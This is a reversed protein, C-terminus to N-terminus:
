KLKLSSIVKEMVEDYYDIHSSAFTLRSVFVFKEEFVVIDELCVQIDNVKINFLIKFTDKRSLLKRPGDTSVLSVNDEWDIHKSRQEIYEKLFDEQSQNNLGCVLVLDEGLPGTISMEQLSSKKDNVNWSVPIDVSFTTVPISCYQYDKINKPYFSESNFLTIHQYLAFSIAVVTVFVAFANVLPKFFKFRNSFVFLLSIIAGALLGGFHAYNDIGKEMFGFLINIILIFMLSSFNQKNKINEKAKEESTKFLEFVIAASLLGLVGGSAGVTLTKGFYASAAGGAIGSGFFILLFAPWGAITEIPPGFFRLAILNMFLHIFGIHVFMYSILRFYEGNKILFNSAAGMNILEIRDEVNFIVIFIVSFVLIVFSVIKSLKDKKEIVFKDKKNALVIETVKEKYESHLEKLKPLVHKAFFVKHELMGEIRKKMFEKIDFAEDPLKSIVARMKDEGDDFEGSYFYCVGRWFDRLEQPLMNLQEANSALYSDYEDKWGMFALFVFRNIIVNNRKEPSDNDPEFAKKELAIQAEIAENYRTTELYARVLYLLEEFQQEEISKNPIRVDNILENFNRNNFHIAGLFMRTVANYPEGLELLKRLEITMKAPSDYYKSAITALDLLHSNPTSWALLAKIRAYFEIEDLRNEAMLSDIKGQIMIPLIVLVFIGFLFILFVWGSAIDRHSLWFIGILLFSLEAIYNSYYKFGQKLLSFILFAVNAALIYILIKFFQEM